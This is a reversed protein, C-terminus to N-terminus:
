AQFTTDEAGDTEPPPFRCNLEALLQRSTQIMDRTQQISARSLAASRTAQAVLAMSDRVTLAVTNLDGDNGHPMQEAM